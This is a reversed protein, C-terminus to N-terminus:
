RGDDDDAPAVDGFVGQPPDQAALSYPPPTPAEVGGFMERVPETNVGDTLEAFVVLRERSSGRPHCTTLTLWAGPHQATVWIENPAVVISSRVTYRHMGTTTLVMIEDGPALDDLPGFPSGNTSRHGSIVANGPQGPLPTEPM